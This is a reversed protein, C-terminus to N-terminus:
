IMMYYIPPMIILNSFIRLFHSIVNALKQVRRLFGDRLWKGGIAGVGDPTGTMIVTGKELTTGQSLFAIIKQISFILEDTNAEQRQEGNVRTRLQLRHPDKIVRTSVLAPGLPAYSDFRKSFNWQPILGAYDKEYQWTRASVDDGAVYSLADEEKIDVGTKGIVLCLEGEYDCQNDHAVKPIPIAENHDAISTRPKYFVTPRKPEPYGAIHQM